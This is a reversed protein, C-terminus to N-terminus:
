HHIPHGNAGRVRELRSPMSYVIHELYEIDNQDIKEWEIHVADQLEDLTRPHHSEVALKLKRFLNEIPMMDPSYSPFDLVTVGNDFLWKKVSNDRLVSSNDHQFYWQENDPILKEVSEM